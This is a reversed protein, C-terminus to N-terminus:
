ILAEIPTPQAAPDDLYALDLGSVHATLDYRLRHHVEEDHLERLVNRDYVILAPSDMIRVPSIARGDDKIIMNHLITCTTVIKGIKEKTMFRFPRELIKWKEKLVGFAREVDKRAAEQLRKFEKEDEEVPHPYSKVFMSWRPYIGDTLYYGCKYNRGNVSFSSDPASGNLESYFLPSQNLFNVDNNSGAPGFFSHWIWLDYSAVCEIM